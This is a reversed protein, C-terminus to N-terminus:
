DNKHAATFGIPARSGRLGMPNKMDNSIREIVTRAANAYSAPDRADEISISGDLNKVRLEISRDGFEEVHLTFFLMRSTSSNEVCIGICFSYVGDDPRLYRDFECPEWRQGGNEDFVPWYLGVYGMSKHYLASPLKAPGRRAALHDSIAQAMKMPLERLMRDIADRRPQEDFWLQCFDEYGTM